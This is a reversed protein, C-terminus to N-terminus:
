LFVAAGFVATNRNAGLFLITNDLPIFDDIRREFLLAAGDNLSYGCGIGWRGYYFIRAALLPSFKGDFNSAIGFYLKFVFGYDKVDLKYAGDEQEIYSFSGEPPIYFKEAKVGAGGKGEEAADELEPTRVKHILTREKLEITRKLGIELYDSQFKASEVERNKFSIALLLLACCVLLVVILINKM